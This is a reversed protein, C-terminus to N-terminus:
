PGNLNFVPIGLFFTMITIWLAGLINLTLGAKAMQPITVHGSGFVVANPPTAVPLMFAFSASLTVPIMLLFPHVELVTAAAALVPMLMTATATNSTVETLFTVTLCLALVLLFVPMGKLLGIGSGIWIDLGTAQFSEALAFGGGFLLLVHWPLKKAWTWDLLFDVNKFDVPTAFLLLAAVVAITGDHIGSWGLVTTWGPLVVTGIEVDGRGMWALATLVFIIMVGREGRSWAGMQVLEKRILSRDAKSSKPLRGVIFTLYLWVLILFGVALPFAFLFWRVFGVEGLGPLLTEVQGAFIVNPPTGILTATGGVSAAYAIGLMLCLSLKQQTTERAGREAMQHIVALAVPLLMVATATNSVWMSLFATAAMFGLLMQRPGSGVLLIVHLALRKHLHWKQMAMAIMFGGMFLFINPNAYPAATQATSMVGLMPYLALPMMATAAVPLSESIWWVAMLIAVAGARQAEVSLGEPTPLLLVLVFLVVGLPFGIKQRWVYSQPLLPSVPNEM